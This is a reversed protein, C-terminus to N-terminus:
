YKLSYIQKLFQIEIRRIFTMMAKMLRLWSFLFTRATPLFITITSCGVPYFKCCRVCVGWIVAAVASGEVEIGAATDASVGGIGGGWRGAAEAPHEVGGGVGAADAPCM